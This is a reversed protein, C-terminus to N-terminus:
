TSEMRHKKIITTKESNMITKVNELDIKQEQSFTEKPNSPQTNNPLTANENESTPLERWDPQKQKVVSWTYPVINNQQTNTKKLIELIELDFFWGNKIITRVQDALM